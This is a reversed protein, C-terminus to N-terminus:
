FSAGEPANDKYNNVPVVGDLDLSSPQPKNPVHPTGNLSYTDLLKNKEIAEVKAPTSGNGRSLPSGTGTPSTLKDLLGM